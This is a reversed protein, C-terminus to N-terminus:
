FSAVFDLHLVNIALPLGDIQKGSYWKLQVTTNKEFAYQGGLFYGKANTGGLHFDSDTFADVVADRQIYRYGVFAQWANRQAFSNDGIALRTQAGKTRGELDLGATRFRIEDRHFGFNRVYAMDLMVHTRGGISQDISMTANAERFKSALGIVYNQTGNLTNAQQNIDFVSNGGQRFPAATNNFQTDLYTPNPIGEIHNYDYLAAAFRIATDHAPNWHLGAQYGYMWKSHASNLPSPSVDQIPFIGATAFLGLNSTLEPTLHLVAGELSLDNSWVLTTNDFFPNGLRGGAFSLWPLPQWALWARDIGISERTNYNGLTQSESASNTGAGVGGTALRIGATVTDGLKAEVGLRARIRLRNVPDSTNTLPLAGFDPLALQQPSANPVSDTPFRDAQYRLRADGSVTIRDLWSPLAGPDGWRETKAQALVDQKVEDRIQQKVTEPVYPVRVVGPAVAANAGPAPAAEKSAEQAKRILEDATARTLVGQDVLANLLNVTTDRLNRLEELEEAMAPLATGLMLLAVLLPRLSRNKM